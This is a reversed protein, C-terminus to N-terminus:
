WYTGNKSCFPILNFKQSSIGFELRLNTINRYHHNIPISLLYTISREFQFTNILMDIFHAVLTFIKWCLLIESYKQEKKKKSWFFAIKFFCLGQHTHTIRLSFQDHIPISLRSSLPWCGMFSEEERRRNQQSKKKWFQWRAFESELGKPFVGFLLHSCRWFEGSNKWM